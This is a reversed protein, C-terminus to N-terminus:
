NAQLVSLLSSVNVEMGMGTEIDCDLTVPHIDGGATCCIGALPAHKATELHRKLWVGSWMCQVVLCQRCVGRPDLLPSPVLSCWYKLGLLSLSCVWWNYGGDCLEFERTVHYQDETDKSNCNTLYLVQLGVYRFWIRLVTRICRVCEWPKAAWVSSIRVHESCDSVCRCCSCYRYAVAFVGTDCWAPVLVTDCIFTKQQTSETSESSGFKTCVSPLVCWLSATNAQSYAPGVCLGLVSCEGKSASFILTNIYSVSGNLVVKKSQHALCQLNPHFCFCWVWSQPPQRPLSCQQQFFSSWFTGEWNYLLFLVALLMWHWIQYSCSWGILLKCEPWAFLQVSIRGHLGNLWVM